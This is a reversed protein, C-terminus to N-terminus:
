TSTKQVTSGGDKPNLHLSCPGGLRQYGVVVSRPTVTWFVVVQIRNYNCHLSTDTIVLISIPAYSNLTRMILLSQPCAYNLDDYQKPLQVAISNSLLSIDICM